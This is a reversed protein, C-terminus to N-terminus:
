QFYFQLIKGMSIFLVIVIGESLNGIKKKFGFRSGWVHTDIDHNVSQGSKARTFFSPSAKLNPKLNGTPYLTGTINM